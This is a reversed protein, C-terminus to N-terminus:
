EWKEENMFKNSQQFEKLKEPHELNHCINCLTILNSDVLALDPRDTLHKIHHVCEAKGVRGEDKCRRCENNDRSIIEQRKRRWQRSRYFKYSNGEKILKILEKNM